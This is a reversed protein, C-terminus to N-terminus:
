QQVMHFHRYLKLVAIETRNLRKSGLSFVARDASATIVDKLEWKGLLPADITQLIHNIFITKTM